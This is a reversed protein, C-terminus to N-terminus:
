STLDVALVLCPCHFAMSRDSGVECGGEQYKEKKREQNKWGRHDERAAAYRITDSGTTDKREDDAM